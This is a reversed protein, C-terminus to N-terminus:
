HRGESHRPPDWPFGGSVRPGPIPDALFHGVCDEVPVRTTKGKKIKETVAKLAELPNVIVPPPM